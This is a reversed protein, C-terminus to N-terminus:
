HSIALRIYLSKTRKRTSSRGLKCADPDMRFGINAANHAGSFTAIGGSGWTGPQQVVRRTTGSSDVSFPAAMTISLGEQAAQRVEEDSAWYKRGTSLQNRVVTLIPENSHDRLYSVLELFIRSLNRSQVGILLRRVLFSEINQMVEAMETDSIAGQSRKRM